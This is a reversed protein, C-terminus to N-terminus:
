GKVNQIFYNIYYIHIGNINISNEVSPDRAVNSPM